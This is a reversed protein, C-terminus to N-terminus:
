NKSSEERRGVHELITQDAGPSVWGKEMWLPLEKKLQKLFRNKSM